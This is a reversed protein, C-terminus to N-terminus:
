KKPPKKVVFKNETGNILRRINERHMIIITLGYLAAFITDAIWPKGGSMNLLMTAFPLLAAGIISGISVIRTLLIVPVVIALLLIAAKINIVCIIGLSTLVGKGGRFGFYVPFLHGLLAFLGAIYGGDLFTIDFRGFLWRGFLVAAVGKSFDGILTIVAPWGGYTRLINTMGASGSGHKRVDDRFGVRSVIVAFNVSGLLYAVVAALLFVPLQGSIFEETM